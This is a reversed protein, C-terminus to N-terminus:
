SWQHDGRPVAGPPSKTKGIPNIFLMYEGTIPFLILVVSHQQATQRKSLAALVGTFVTHLGSAGAARMKPSTSYGRSPIARSPTPNTKKLLIARDMLGM